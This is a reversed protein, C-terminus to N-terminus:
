DLRVLLTCDYQLVEHLFNQQHSVVVCKSVQQLCRYAHSHLYELFFALKV